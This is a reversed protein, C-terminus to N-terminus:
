RDKSKEVRQASEPRISKTKTGRLISRGQSKVIVVM